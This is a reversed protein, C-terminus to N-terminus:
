WLRNVPTTRRVAAGVVFISHEPERPILCVNEQQLLNPTVILKIRSM